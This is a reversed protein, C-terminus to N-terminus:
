HDVDLSTVLHGIVLSWYLGEQSFISLKVPIKLTKINFKTLFPNM